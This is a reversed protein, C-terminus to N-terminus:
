AGLATQVSAAVSPEAINSHLRVAVEVACRVYKAQAEDLRVGDLM